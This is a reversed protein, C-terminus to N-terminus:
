SGRGGGTSREENLFFVLLRPIHALALLVTVEHLLGVGV